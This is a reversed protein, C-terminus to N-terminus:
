GRYRLGCHGMLRATPRVFLLLCVFEFVVSPVRLRVMWRLVFSLIRGWGSLVMLFLKM